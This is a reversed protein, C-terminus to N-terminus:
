VLDQDVLEFTAAYLEDIKFIKDVHDRKQADHSHLYKLIRYINPKVTM